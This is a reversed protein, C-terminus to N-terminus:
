SLYSVNLQLQNTYLHNLLLGNSLTQGQARSLRSKGWDSFEYGAGVQWHQNLIKQVGASLTYTLTTETNNTFLPEPLTEFAVSQMTFDYAHNYGVGLSGGVYPLYSTNAFPKFLKGKLGVHMHNIQYQYCFNDFAPEGAEWIRGQLHADGSGAFTLGLQGILSLPLPNQLGVFVEGEALVKTPTNAVYTNKFGPQLYFTQTQGAAYWAGGGSLTLVIPQFALADDTGLFFVCFLYSFTRKNKM